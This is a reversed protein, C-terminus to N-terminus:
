FVRWCQPRARCVLTLTRNTALVKALEVAGETYIKDYSLLLQM